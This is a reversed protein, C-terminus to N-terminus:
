AAEVVTSAFGCLADSLSVGSRLIAILRDIRESREFWEGKLREAAFLRHTDQELHISGAVVLIPRLQYPCGPQLVAIRVLLSAPSRTYGIKVAPLPPAELFYVKPGRLHGARLLHELARQNAIYARVQDDTHRIRGGVRTFELKDRKRERRVTDVSCGLARAVEQETLLLPLSLIRERAEALTMLRDNM